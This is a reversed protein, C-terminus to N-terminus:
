MGAKAARQAQKVTVLRVATELPCEKRSVDERMWRPVLHWCPTCMYSFNPNDCGPVPCPMCPSM